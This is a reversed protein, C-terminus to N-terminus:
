VIRRQYFGASVFADAPKRNVKPYREQLKTRCVTRPIKERRGVAGAHRFPCNPTLAGQPRMRRGAPIM